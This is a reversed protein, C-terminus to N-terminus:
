RSQISMLYAILEGLKGTIEEESMKNESFVKGWTPMERAGHASVWQRGDIFRAVDQVPFETAGRREMIRTLDPPPISLSDAQPGDGNTGHCTLCYQDYLVKGAKAQAERSNAPPGSNCAITLVFSFLAVMIAYLGTYFKLKKM